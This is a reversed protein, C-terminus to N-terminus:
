DLEFGSALARYARNLLVTLDTGPADVWYAFASISTALATYGVTRPVLDGPRTGLRDAVFEAVVARWAEYRLMSHAQLAPVRMILTIRTRLEPLLEDPYTNSAVVAERLADMMPMAPDRVALESRLRDLVSEFEGWAMDNKSPFYRFLTRRSIGLEAAVDDLTTHEFGREGFLRLAVESV